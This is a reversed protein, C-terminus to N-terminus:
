EIAECEVLYDYSQTDLQFDLLSQLYNIQEDSEVLYCDYMPNQSDIGFLKQLQELSINDITKQGILNEGEKEFWRLVRNIKPKSRRQTQESFTDIIQENSLESNM